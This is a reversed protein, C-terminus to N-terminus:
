ARGGPQIAKNIVGSSRLNSVTDSNHPLFIKSLALINTLLILSLSIKVDGGLLSCWLPATGGGPM